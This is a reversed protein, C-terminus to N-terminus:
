RFRFEGLLYDKRRKMKKFLDFKKKWRPIQAKGVGTKEALVIRNGYAEAHTPEIRIAKEILVQADRYQGRQIMLGGLNNLAHANEPRIVLVQRYRKEACANDEILQCQYGVTLQAPANQPYQNAVRKWLALGSAYTFTHMFSLSGLFLVCGVMMSNALFKKRQGQGLSELGICVAVIVAISPLYLYRDQRLTAIPILNSVPILWIVFWGIGFIAFPRSRFNKVVYFCIGFFFMYSLLFQPDKLSVSNFFYRPSLQFPFFLCVVYDWFVRLTYLLSVVFSGGAYEKIAGLAGQSYITGLGALLSLLFFPNKGDGDDKEEAGSFGAVGFCM